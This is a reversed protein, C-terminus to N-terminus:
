DGYMQHFRKRVPMQTVEKHEEIHEPFRAFFRAYAQSAPFATIGHAFISITVTAVVISLLQDSGPLQAHEVILVVFLISALGRPGFWSLFLVSGPKLGTGLLSLAIPIGRILTLSLIAYLWIMPDSIAFILPMMSAGFFLFTLLVLLEGETEAFEHIRPCVSKSFNGVALGGVFAAIFGNAGLLEALAFALLALAVTSLREYTLSMWTTNSAAEVLKGGVFGVGFGVVVSLGLQLAAFSYWNRGTDGEFAGVLAAFVLVLPLVMGDNLGSEVNLSQRIRVPVVPNSVVAQGLAPDTPALIAALLAAQWLGLGAFMGMAVGTGLLITLPLGILLLRVPIDHEAVLLKLDIRSADGFLVLVLALEALTHVFGFEVNFEALDLVQPGLVLGFLVFVMPPTIISRQLRGSVLGYGLIGLAVVAFALSTM